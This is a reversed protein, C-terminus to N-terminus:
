EMRRGNLIIEAEGIGSRDLQIPINDPTTITLQASSDQKEWLLEVSGRPTPTRLFAYTLSAPQPALDELVQFLSYAAVAM